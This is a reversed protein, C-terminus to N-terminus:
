SFNGFNQNINKDLARNIQEFLNKFDSSLSIGSCRRLTEGQQNEQLVTKIEELPQLLKNQLNVIFILGALLSFIAMFVIGWAGGRGMQQARTDAAIMANRNIQSLLLIASITESLSDADGAFYKESYKKVAALAETEEKETINALARELAQKFSVHLEAFKVQQLNAQALATLMQECSQLSRENNSIIDAIAPTMRTFIGIAGFAMLLNIFVILWAGLIFGKALRM